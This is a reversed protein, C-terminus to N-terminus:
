RTAAKLMEAFPRAPDALTEPDVAIRREILRRIAAMDRQANIGVAAVIRGEDVGIALASKGAMPRRVVRAGDSPWGVGQIYLDYQESWFSPVPTYTDDAGAANRGAVAGQDQAHKWNELHVRGDPGPFRTCDGAALIAPDSTRCWADVFVGDGTELGAARALADDPKVGVGVVVIDAVYLDGDSSELALRGDQQPTAQILACDLEIEVGHHRHEAVIAASTAADCCRALAMPAAELVTVAIGRAAASSAVELGILGAGVVIMDKCGDMAAKLARADAATRLYHVRPMSPPLPRLERLVSGTALVLADYPFHGASTALTRAARDIAICRAQRVLEVGHAALGGGGAIPAHEPAAAGGLVAKSLPPKEYPECDEDTLLTVRADTDRRKAEIAAWVAAPGGGVIVINKPM